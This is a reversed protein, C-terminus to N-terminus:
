SSMVFQQPFVVADVFDHRARVTRLTPDVQHKTSNSLKHWTLALVKYDFQFTWRPLDVPVSHLLNLAVGFGDRAVVPEVMGVRLPYEVGDRIVEMGPDFVADALRSPRFEEVQLMGFLWDPYPDLRPPM